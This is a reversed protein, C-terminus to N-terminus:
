TFLEKYTPIKNFIAPNTIHMGKVKGRVFVPTKLSDSMHDLISVAKANDIKGDKVLTMLAAVFEQTTNENYTSATSRVRLARELELGGKEAADFVGRHKQRLLPDRESRRVSELITGKAEESAKEDAGPELMELQKDLAFDISNEPKTNITAAGFDIVFVKVDESYPDSYNGQVMFNREHDDNHHLGNHEFLKMTSRIQKVISPHIRFGTKKLHRYLKDSNENAVLREQMRRDAESGKLSPRSFELMEAIASQMSEVSGRSVIHEKGKPPHELAWRYCITALDEGEVFDMVVVEAENKLSANHSKNLRDRTEDDITVKRYDIPKPVHALDPIRGRNMEVIQYAMQQAGFEKEANGHNYVKLTKVAADEAGLRVKVPSPVQEADMKYILGNRGENVPNERRLLEEYREEIEREERGHEADELSTFNHKEPILETEPAFTEM